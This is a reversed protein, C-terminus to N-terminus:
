DDARWHLLRQEIVLIEAVKAEQVQKALQDLDAQLWAYAQARFTTRAQEPLKAAETGQGAGALAAACAADYRYQKAADGALTPQAKFMEQYLRVVTAHRKLYRRCMDAMDLLDVVDAHEKGELIQPLRKELAVLRQAQKLKLQVEALLPDGVSLVELNKQYADVSAGFSGQRRLVNGLNGLAPVFKPDLDIAKRYAAAAEPLKEQDLFANGLANHAQVFNADLAIAKQHAAIAEPLKRQERLVIGLNSQAMALKPDLEIAKQYAAGAEPLKGLDRLVAGFGNYTNADNADLEIAKQFAVRAESLKGQDRLVNGLNSHAMAAKPDLDIAKQFAANAAALKRQNVLIAGLYNYARTYNPNLEIAKRVAAMAEPLKGQKQLIYGRNCYAVANKPDLEIVKQFAASAEPLKRQDDFVYGLGTFARTYKPDLQIAKQYAASAEPLKRQKQLANGLGTYARPYEPGLEIAKQYAAVAESLKQQNLLDNGLDIFPDVFRVDLRLGPDDPFAAAATRMFPVTEELNNERLRQNIEVHFWSRLRTRPLTTMEPTRRRLQDWATHVEAPTLPVLSGTDDLRASVELQALTLWAAVDPGDGTFDWLQAAESFGQVVVQRGDPRFATNQVLAVRWAPGLTEGTAADYACVRGPNSGCLLWRGCSSFSVFTTNGGHAIVPSLPAGTNVDWVRIKGSMDVTALRGDPAFTVRSVHNQHPLTLRKKGSPLEWIGATQDGSATALLKSDPSFTVDHVEYHHKMIPSVPQGHAADLVQAAGDAGAAALWKGDPSLAIHLRVQGLNATQWLLRGTRADWVHCNQYGWWRKTFDGTVTVVREGTPDFSALYLDREHVM